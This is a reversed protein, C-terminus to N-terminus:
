RKGLAFDLNRRGRDPDHGFLTVCGVLDGAADWFATVSSEPGIFPQVEIFTESTQRALCDILEVLGQAVVRHECLNGLRIRYIRLLDAATNGVRSRSGAYVVRQDGLASLAATAWETQPEGRLAETLRQKESM